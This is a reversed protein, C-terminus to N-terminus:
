ALISIGIFCHRHIGSRSSCVSPGHIFAGIHADSHAQCVCVIEHVTSPHLFGEWVCVKVPPHVSQTQQTKGFCSHTPGQIHM